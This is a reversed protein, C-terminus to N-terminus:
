ASTASSKISSLFGLARRLMQSITPASMAVESVGADYTSEDGPESLRDLEHGIECIRRRLEEESGNDGDYEDFCHRTQHLLLQMLSMVLLM